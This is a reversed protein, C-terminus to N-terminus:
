PSITPPLDYTGYSPQIVDGADLMQRMLYRVNGDKMGTRVAIESPGLPKGAARIADMITQREPTKALPVTGGQPIWMARSPQFQFDIEDGEVERAMVHLTIDNGGYIATQSRNMLLVNDVAGTLGTSGSVLDMPDALASDRKNAHHIVLISVGTDVYIQALPQLAAYDLDYVSRRPNGPTRVRALTDVVILKTDPYSAIYDRLVSEGDPSLHPFERVIVLEEPAPRGNLMLNLRKQIGAKSGELALFLVRGRSVPITNFAQTGLALAVAINQAFMTKGIKPKAVLLTTGEPLIGDVIWSPPKLKMKQLDRATFYPLGNLPDTDRSSAMM